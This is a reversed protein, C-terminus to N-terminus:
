AAELRHRLGPLDLPEGIAPIRFASPFPCRGAGPAAIRALGAVLARLELVGGVAVGRQRTALQSASIGPLDELSIPSHVYERRASQTSLSGCTWFYAIVWCVSRSIRFTFGSANSGSIPSQRSRLADVM